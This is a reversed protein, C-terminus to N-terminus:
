TANGKRKTKEEEEKNVEERGNRGGGKRRGEGGGIEREGEGRMAETKEERKGTKKKKTWKFLLLILRITIM